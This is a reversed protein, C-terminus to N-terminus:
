INIWSTFWSISVQNSGVPRPLIMTIITTDHEHNTQETTDSEKCGFPSYGVLSRQGPSLITWPIEWALIGFHTAM